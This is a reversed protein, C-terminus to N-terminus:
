RVKWLPDRRSHEGAQRGPPYNITSAGARLLDVCMGNEELWDTSRIVNPVSMMATENYKAQKLLEYSDPLAAKARADNVKDV